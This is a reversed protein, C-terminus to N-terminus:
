VDTYSTLKFSIRSRYSNLDALMYTGSRMGSFMPLKIHRMTVSEFQLNSVGSVTDRSFLSTLKNQDEKRGLFTGDFELATGNEFSYFPCSKNYLGDYLTEALDNREATHSSFIHIDVDREVKKGAGLQYGSKNTGSMDIVVIPAEPAIKDSWEDIVSVYNWDYSISDPVTNSDTIVRGDIYDIIYNTDPIEIGNSDYVVIRNSQEPIGGDIETLGEDFYVWGRGYESPRPLMSTVAEYVMSDEQSIDPINVLPISEEREIFDALVVHKIYYYLSLDEKRMARM